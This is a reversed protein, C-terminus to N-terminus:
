GLIFDNAALTQVGQLLVTMDATGNPRGDDGIERPADIEVLAGGTAPDAPPTYRVEPRGSATFAETGLFTFAGAAQLNSVIIALDIRDEDANFDTITEAEFPGRFQGLGFPWGVRFTDFGPGGTMVDQGIWGHLTDQGEGGLMTDAGVGGFLQDNGAGGDLLDPGQTSAGLRLNLLDRTDGWLIDNGDGGFLQDAGRYGELTDNGAGGNLTDDGLDGFINDAGADGNLLDGGDGPLGVLGISDPLQIRINAGGMIVDDGEAGSVTDAGGLTIIIDDGATGTIADPEPTGQLLQGVPTPPTVANVHEQSESFGVVVDSRSARGSAIVDVWWALGGPDPERDLVNQYLLVVFQQNDPTGYKTQFEPAATFGDAISQLPIGNRLANVWFEFGGPDPARNFVTDYLRFIPGEQADFTAM